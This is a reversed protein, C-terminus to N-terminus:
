AVVIALGALVLGAGLGQRLDFGEGLSAALGLVLVTEVGLIAIYLVSLHTQRMLAVEAAFAAAFGAVALLGGVVAHGSAAAKMGATALVYGFATALVLSPATLAPLSLPFM